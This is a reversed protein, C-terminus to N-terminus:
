SNSRDRIASELRDLRTVGRNVAHRMYVLFAVYTGAYVVSVADHEAVVDIVALAGLCGFFWPNIKSAWRLQRRRREILALLPPDLAEDSPLEGTRLAHVVASRNPIGSPGAARQDRRRMVAIFVTMSAGFLLGAFVAGTLWRPGPGPSLYLAAGFFVSLGLFVAWLQATEVRDRWRGHM